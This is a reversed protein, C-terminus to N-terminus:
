SDNNCSLKIGNKRSISNHYSKQIIGERSKINGVSLDFWNSENLNFKNLFDLKSTKVNHLLHSIAITNIILIEFYSELSVPSPPPLIQFSRPFNSLAYSNNVVFIYMTCNEGQPKMALYRLGQKSDWVLYIEVFHLCKKIKM